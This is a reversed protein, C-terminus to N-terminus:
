ALVAFCAPSCPPTSSTKLSTTRSRLARPRSAPAASPRRLVGRGPSCSRSSSGAVQGHAATGSAGAPKRRPARRASSAPRPTGYRVAEPSPQLGPLCPRVRGAMIDGLNASCWQVYLMVHGPLSSLLKQLLGAKAYRRLSAWTAWRGRALVELMPRRGSLVDESAGGHRLQYLVATALGLVAM